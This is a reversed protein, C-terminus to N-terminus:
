CDGTFKFVKKPHHGMQDDQKHLLFPFNCNSKDALETRQGQNAAISTFWGHLM